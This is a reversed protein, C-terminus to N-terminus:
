PQMTLDADVELVSNAVFGVNANDGVAEDANADGGSRGPADSLMEEDAEHREANM